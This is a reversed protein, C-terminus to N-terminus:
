RHKGLDLVRGSATKRKAVTESPRASVRSELSDLL